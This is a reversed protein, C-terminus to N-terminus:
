IDAELIAKYNNEMVSLYDEKDMDEEDLCELPNLTAVKAGTEAAIFNAVDSGVMEEYFITSIGYQKIAEEIKKVTKATPTSNPELGSLYLQNLNFDSCLYGFSAHSVVVYKNKREELKVRYTNELERFKLTYTELNKSYVDKHSPDLEIFSSAVEGMEKIANSVSLWCHPDIVGDISSPSISSTVCRSKKQMSSPINGIWSDLGLGYYLILPSESMGVVKKATPEFDHPEVGPPTVLEVDFYDGAIKKAFDYIPYITAYVTHSYDKKECSPLLCMFPILLALFKSNM